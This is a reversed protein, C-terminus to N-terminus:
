ETETSPSSNSNEYICWALSIESDGGVYISDIWDGLAREVVVKVDSATSLALLEKKPITWGEPALLGKGM